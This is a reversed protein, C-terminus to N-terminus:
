RTVKLTKVDKPPETKMVSRKMVSKNTARQKIFVGVLILLVGVVQPCDVGHSLAEWVVGTFLQGGIVLLATLTAGVKSLVYSNIAVFVAGIVGGFWAAIPAAQMTELPVATTFYVIVSLFVFGVAHNWFSANFASTDQALRGNIVRCFSICCGNLLALLIMLM